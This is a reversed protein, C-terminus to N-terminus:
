SANEYNLKSAWLIERFCQLHLWVVLSCHSLSGLHSTDCTCYWHWRIDRTICVQVMLELSQGNRHGNRKSKRLDRNFWAFPFFHIWLEKNFKYLKHFLIRNVRNIFQYFILFIPTCTSLFFDTYNHYLPVYVYVINLNDVGMLIYKLPISRGKQGFSHELRYVHQKFEESDEEGM